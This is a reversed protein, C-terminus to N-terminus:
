VGILDDRTDPASHGTDGPRLAKVLEVISLLAIIAAPIGIVLMRVTRDALAIFVYGVYPVNLQMRPQVAGDLQFTWPDRDANADGKTRLVLDGARADHRLSVIRHTVLHDVGSGAPPQYTIVDGLRLQDVPVSKDFAVSGIEFTGSMSGGTIVYREYGFLSPLVFALSVLCVAAVLVTALMRGLRATLQRASRM